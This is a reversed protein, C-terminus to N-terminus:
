MGVGVRVELAQKVILASPDLVDVSGLGEEGGGPSCPQGRAAVRSFCLLSPNSEQTKIVAKWLPSVRDRCHRQGTTRLGSGADPDSTPKHFHLPSSTHNLLDQSAVQSDANRILAGTISTGTGPSWM